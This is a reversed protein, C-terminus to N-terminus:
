LCDGTLSCVAILGGFGAVVLVVVGVGIGIIPAFWKM